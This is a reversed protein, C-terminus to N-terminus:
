DGQDLASREQKSLFTRSLMRKWFLGMEEANFVQEPMFTKAKILEMLQPPDNKVADHEASPQIPAKPRPHQM